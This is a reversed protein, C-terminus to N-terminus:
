GIFDAAHRFLNQRYRASCINTKDDVVMEFDCAFKARLKTMQPLFIKKVRSM